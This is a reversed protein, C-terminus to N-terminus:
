KIIESGADYISVKKGVWGSREVAREMQGPQCHM